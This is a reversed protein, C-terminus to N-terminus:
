LKEHGFTGKGGSILRIKEEKKQKKKKGEKRRERKGEKRSLTEKLKTRIYRPGISRLFPDIVTNGSSCGM